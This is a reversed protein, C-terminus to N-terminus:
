PTTRNSTGGSQPLLVKPLTLDLIEIDRNWLLFRHLFFFCALTNRSSAVVGDYCLSFIPDIRRSAGHLTEAVDEPGFLARTWLPGRVLALSILRWRIEAEPLPGDRAAEALTRFALYLHAVLDDRGGGEAAFRPFMSPFQPSSLGTNCKEEIAEGVFAWLFPHQSLASPSLTRQM